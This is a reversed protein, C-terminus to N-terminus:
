RVRRSRRDRIERRGAARWADVSRLFSSSGAAGMAVPRPAGGGGCTMTALVSPRGRFERRGACRPCTRRGSRRRMRCAADGRCASARRRIADLVRRDHRAVVRGAQGRRSSVSTSAYRPVRRSRLTSAPAEVDRRREVMRPEHLRVGLRVVPQHVPAVILRRVVGAEILDVRLVDPPEPGRPGEGIGPSETSSAVGSTTSPTM